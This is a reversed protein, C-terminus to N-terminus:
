PYPATFFLSRFDGAEERAPRFALRVACAPLRYVAEEDEGDCEGEAEVGDEGSGEVVADEAAEFRLGDGVGEVFGALEGIREAIFGSGGRM